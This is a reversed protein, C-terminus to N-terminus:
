YNNPDHHPCSVCFWEYVDFHGGGGGEREDLRKKISGMEQALGSLNHTLSLLVKSITQIDTPQSSLTPNSPIDDFNDVSAEGFKRPTTCTQGVEPSLPTDDKDDLISTFLNSSKM